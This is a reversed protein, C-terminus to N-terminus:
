TSISSGLLGAHEAVLWLAMWVTIVSIATMSYRMARTSSHGRLWVVGAGSVLVSSVGAVIVPRIDALTFAPRLGDGLLFQSAVLGTAITSLLIQWGAAAIGETRENAARAPPIWWQVVCIGLLLWLGGSLTLIAYDERLIFIVLAGAPILLGAVLLWAIILGIASFSWARLREAWVRSYGSGSGEAPPKYVFIRRQDNSM